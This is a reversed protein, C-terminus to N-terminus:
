RRPCIACIGLTAVYGPLVIVAASTRSVPAACTASAVPAVSIATLTSPVAPAAWALLAGLLIATKRMMNRGQM